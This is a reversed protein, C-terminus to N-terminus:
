FNVLKEMMKPYISSSAVRIDINNEFINELIM